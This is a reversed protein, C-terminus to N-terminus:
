RVGGGDISLIKIGKGKTPPNNGLLALVERTRHLIYTDKHTKLVKALVKVAGTEIATNRTENHQYIHSFLEDLHTILNHKSGSSSTTLGKQVMLVLHKTRSEINQWYLNTELFKSGETTELRKAPVQRPEPAEEALIENLNLVVEIKKADIVRNNQTNMEIVNKLVSQDPTGVTKSPTTPIKIPTSLPPPSNTNSGITSKTTTATTSTLTPTNLLKDKKEKDSQPQQEQPGSSTSNTSSPSSNNAGSSGAASSSASRFIGSAAGGEMGVTFQQLKNMIGEPLYRLVILLDRGFAFALAGRNPSSRLVQRLQSMAKLKLATQSMMTPKAAVKGGTSGVPAAETPNGWRSGNSM